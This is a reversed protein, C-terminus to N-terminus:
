AIQEEVVWAAGGADPWADSRVQLVMTGTQREGSWGCVENSQRHGFPGGLSCSTEDRELRRSHFAQLRLNPYM